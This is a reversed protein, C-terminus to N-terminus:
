RRGRCPDRHDVLRGHGIETRPELGLRGDADRQELVVRPRTAPGGEGEADGARVPARDRGVARRGALRQPPQEDVDAHGKDTVLDLPEEDGRRAGSLLEGLDGEVGLDRRVEDVGAQAALGDGVDDGLLEVQDQGIRGAQVAVARAPSSARETM